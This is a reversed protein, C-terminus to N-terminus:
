PEPWAAVIGHHGGGAGDRRFSHLLGPSDFTCRPSAEISPPPIGCELLFLRNARALDFHLRDGRMAVCEKTWERSRRFAAPVEAGVPYREVGITPGIAARCRRPDSGFQRQMTRVLNVVIGRASGKWGAHVAGVARHVPDAVVVLSCDAARLFLALGPTATVLGDAEPAPDGTPGDVRLVEAHHVQRVQALLHPSLGLAAAFRDRDGRHRVDLPLTSVACRLGVEELSSPVLVRLGGRTAEIV